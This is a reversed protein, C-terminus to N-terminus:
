RPRRATSATPSQQGTCGDAHLVGPQVHRHASRCLLLPFRREVRDAVRDGHEIAVAEDQAAIGREGFIQAEM